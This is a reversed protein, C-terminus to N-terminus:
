SNVKITRKTPLQARVATITRITIDSLGLGQLVYINTNFHPVKTQAHNRGWRILNKFKTNFYLIM